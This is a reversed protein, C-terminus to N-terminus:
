FIPTNIPIYSTSFFIPNPGLIYSNLLFIPIPQCGANTLTRLIRLANELIRRHPHYDIAAKKLCKYPGALMRLSNAFVDNEVLGARDMRMM